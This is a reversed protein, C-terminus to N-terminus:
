QKAPKTPAPATTPRILNIGAVYIKGPGIAVLRLVGRGSLTGSWTDDAGLRGIPKFAFTENAQAFLKDTEGSTVPTKLTPFSQGGPKFSVHLVTADKPRNAQWNWKGDVYKIKGRLRQPTHLRTAPDGLLAYMLIQDRKLKDLDVKDEIKGEADLLVREIVPNRALRAKLQTDLWLDGIRKHGRGFAKLLCQGSFFNTLPQSQTTAGIFVVPGGPAMLLTEGMSEQDSAFSGTYCSIITMPPMPTKTGLGALMQRAGFLINRGKSRMSFFSTESGHGILVGMACGRSFQKTFMAAQKEPTGCLPHKPDSLIMWPRVWRPLHIRVSTLAVSSTMSDIFASYGAAGGWIPLRLDDPTPQRSEHAIIKAIITRLQKTTRVPLRGVPADPILDNNFDGLIMDAAFHHPQSAHWRYMKRRPSPLYWKEGQKGAQDDGVLLIFAPRRKQAAITKIAAPLTSVSVDFGERRRRDVLPKLDATFMNRTIVLWLRKPPAGRPQAGGLSATLCLLVM